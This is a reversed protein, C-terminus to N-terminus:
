PWIVKWESTDEHEMFNNTNCEFCICFLLGSVASAAWILLPINRGFLFSTCNCYCYITSLKMLLIFIFFPYKNVLPRQCSSEEYYMHICKSSTYIITFCLFLDYQHIKICHLHHFGWFGKCNTTSFHKKLCIALMLSLIVLYQWFGLKECNIHQM